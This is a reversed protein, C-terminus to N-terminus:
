ALGKYINKRQGAARPTRSRSESRKHQPFKALLQRLVNDVLRIQFSKMTDKAPLRSLYPNSHGSSIRWKHRLDTNKTGLPRECLACCMKSVGLVGGTIGQEELYTTLTLECHYVIDIGEEPVQVNWANKIEVEM